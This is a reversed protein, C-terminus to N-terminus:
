NMVCACVYSEVVGCVETAERSDAFLKRAEDHKGAVALGAIEGEVLSLELGGIGTSEGASYVQAFLLRSFSM